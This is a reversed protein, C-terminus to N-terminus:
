IGEQSRHTNNKWFRNTGSRSYPQSLGYCGIQSSEIAVLRACVAVVLCSHHMPTVAIVSQRKSRVLAGNQPRKSGCSCHGNAALKENSPWESWCMPALFPNGGWRLTGICKSLHFMTVPLQVLRPFFTLTYWSAMIRPPMVSSCIMCLM